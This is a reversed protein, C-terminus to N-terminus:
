HLQPKRTTIADLSEPQQTYQVILRVLLDDLYEIAYSGITPEIHSEGIGSHDTLFTYTGGTHIALFRMLFETEKDVGSSSVPIIRIGKEAAKKTLDQLKKLRDSTHHPPADLVLFLFRSQASTSWEHKEIAEELAEEVAEPADGGGGANQSRIFMAVDHISESFPHSRVVYEDGQDRYVNAGLRITYDTEMEKHVREFVSELEAKIYNLEDGMSGTADVVFMVDVTNLAEPAKRVRAFLPSESPSQERSPDVNGLKTEQDGVQVVVDYPGDENTSSLGTFLEVRGHNDTRATWLLTGNKDYLKAVADPIPQRGNDVRVSIREGKGFGWYEVMRSWDSSAIVSNWFSWETLDSWEGATLQGPNQVPEPEPKAEEKDSTMKKILVEEVVGDGDFGKHEGPAPEPSAFAKADRESYAYDVADVAYSIDDGASLAMSGGASESSVFGGTLRSPVAGEAIDSAVITTVKSPVGASGEVTKARAVSVDSTRGGRAKFGGSGDVSLLSEESTPSPADIWISGGKAVRSSSALDVSALGKGSSTLVTAGDSTSSHITTSSHETAEPETDQKTACASLILACSLIWLTISLASNFLNKM